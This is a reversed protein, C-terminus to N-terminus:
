PKTESAPSELAFPHEGRQSRTVHNPRAARREPMLRRLRGGWCKRRGAWRCCTTSRPLRCHEGLDSAMGLQREVEADAAAKLESKDYADALDAARGQRDAQLISFSPLPAWPSLEWCSCLACHQKFGSLVTTSHEMNPAAAVRATRWRAGPGVTTTLDVIWEAGQKKGDQELGEMCPCLAQFYQLTAAGARPRSAFRSLSYPTTSTM